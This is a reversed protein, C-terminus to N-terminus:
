ARIVLFYLRAVKFCVRGRRSHLKFVSPSLRVSRINFMSSMEHAPKSNTITSRTVRAHVHLLKFHKHVCAHMSSRLWWNLMIQQFMTLKLMHGFGELWKILTWVSFVIPPAWNLALLFLYEPAM